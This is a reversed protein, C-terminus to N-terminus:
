QPECSGPAALARRAYRVYKASNTTQDEITIQPTCTSPRPAEGCGAGRSIVDCYFVNVIEKIEERILSEAVKEERAKKREETETAQPQWFCLFHTGSTFIVILHLHSSGEPDLGSDRVGSENSECHSGRAM